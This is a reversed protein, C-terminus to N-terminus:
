REAALVSGLLAGIPAGVFGVELSETAAGVLAVAAGGLLSGGLMRLFSGNGGNTLHVAIPIAVPPVPFAGLLAGRLGPDDCSCPALENEITGGLYAGGIFSGAAALLGIGLLAGTSATRAQPAPPPSM